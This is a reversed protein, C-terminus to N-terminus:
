LIYIPLPIQTLNDRLFNTEVQKRELQSKRSVENLMEKLEVILAIGFAWIDSM